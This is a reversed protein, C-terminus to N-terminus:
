MRYFNNLANVAANMAADAQAQSKSVKPLSKLIGTGLCLYCNSEIIQNSSENIIQFVTGYGSCNYCTCSM